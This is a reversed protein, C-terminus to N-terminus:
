IHTDRMLTQLETFLASASMASLDDYAYDQYYSEASTGDLTTCVVNRTGSNYETSYESPYSANSYTTAYPAVSEVAYSSISPIFASLLLILILLASTINRKFTKM